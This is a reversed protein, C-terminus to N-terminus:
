CAQDNADIYEVEITPITQRLPTVDVVINGGIVEILKITVAGDEWITEGPQFEMNM